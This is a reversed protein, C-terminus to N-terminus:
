YSPPVFPCDYQAAVTTVEFREIKDCYAGTIHIGPPSLTGDYNWGDSESAPLPGPIKQGDLSVVISLPDRVAGPLRLLCSARTVGGFTRELALELPLPNSVSYFGPSGPSAAAGGAHAMADLCSPQGDPDVALDSDVGVVIVRIDNAVMSSVQTLADFCAGAIRTGQSDFTDANSLQGALTCNPAGDTVLLVYRNDVGDNLGDFYEAAARLAGATPTNGDMPAAAAIAAVVPQANDPGLEVSPPAVWCGSASLSDHDQKAPMDQYGFRVHNAYSTVLDSALLAAAHYRTDSGLFTDMSGSRDFLILVDAQRPDLAVTESACPPNGSSDTGDVGLVNADARAGSDVGDDVEACGFGGVALLVLWSLGLDRAV